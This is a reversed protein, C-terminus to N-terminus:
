KRTGGNKTSQASVVGGVKSGPFTASSDVSGDSKIHIFVKGTLQPELYNGMAKRTILANPDLSAKLSAGIGAADGQNIKQQQTATTYQGLFRQTELPDRGLYKQSTKYGAMLRTQEFELLSLQASAKRHELTGKETNQIQQYLRQLTMLNNQIQGMSAQNLEIMKLEMRAKEEDTLKKVSKAANDYQGALAGINSVLKQSADINEKLYLSNKKFASAVIMVIGVLLMLKLMVPGLAVGFGKGMTIVAHKVISMMDKVKQFAGYIMMIPGVAALLGGLVVIVTKIPGPLSNLASFVVGLANALFGLAPMIIQGVNIALVKMTAVMKKWSFGAKNVGETQAKYATDLAGAANKNANLAATYAGAQKGALSMAFNVAEISGFMKILVNKDGKSAAVVKQIAGAFGFQKIAAEGSAVEMTKYAAKMEPTTRLMGTMAARMMTVVEATEGLVPTTAAIAAFMEEQSVGVAQALPVVKGLSAALKPFTTKGLKVTIFALDAAKQTAAASTDGYGKTITALLGVADKTSALGAIGAKNAVAMQNTVDKSDGMVSILDYLGDTLDKTSTGTDVSMKLMAKGLAETRPINNDILTAVNAMGANFDVGMKTAAIGLGVIPLTLRASLKKGAQMATAGAAHMKANLDSFQRQASKLTDGMRKFGDGMQKLPATLKDRLSILVSVEMNSAM